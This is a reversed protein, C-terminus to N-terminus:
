SIGCFFIWKALRHSLEVDGVAAATLGEVQLAVAVRRRRNRLRGQHAQVRAGPRVRELECRVHVYSCRNRCAHTLLALGELM